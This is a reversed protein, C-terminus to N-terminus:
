GSRTRARDGVAPPTLGLSRAILRDMWRAPAVRSLLRVVDFAAIRKNVAPARAELAARVATAVRAPPPGARGSAIAHARLRELAPAFPTHAYPTADVAEAKDWIPTAIPGPRLAVVDIDLVGLERRLAETLSALAAKSAAYPGLFPFATDASVSSINVIRPQPANAPRPPTEASRAMLPAMAQVVRLQGFVNVDFQRAIEEIPLHLLPGPVAVGANNVLGQLRAGALAAAVEDRAAAVSDADTVDLRLPSVAPGFAALRAADAEGRVGAFVRWGAAALDAACAFGIGTSAGTVVVARAMDPTGASM